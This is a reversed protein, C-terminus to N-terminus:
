SLYARQRTLALGVASGLSTIFPNTFGATLWLMLLIAVCSVSRRHRIGRLTTSLVTGIMLMTGVLGFQMVTAYWQAEYSFPLTESRTYNPVAAGIGRGFFPHLAIDATLEQIQEIRTEDSEQAGEGVFRDVLEGGFLALVLCLLAIGVLAVFDFKKLWLARVALGVFFCVFIFRSFSLFVVVGVALLFVLDRFRSRGGSYCAILFLCVFDGPFQLRFLNLGIDLTVTEFGFFGMVTELSYGFFFVAVWMGIKVGAMLSVIAMCTNDMTSRTRIDHRAYHMCAFVAYFSAVRVFQNLRDDPSVDNLLAVFYALFLGLVALAGIVWGRNNFDGRITGVAFGMALLAVKLMGLSPIAVLFIALWAAWPRVAQFHPLKPLSASLPLASSM